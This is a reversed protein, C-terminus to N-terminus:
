LDLTHVKSIFRDFQERDFRSMDWYNIVISKNNQLEIIVGSKTSKAHIVDERLYTRKRGFESHTILHKETVKLYPHILRLVGLTILLAGIPWLAIGIGKADVLFYFGCLIGIIGFFILGVPLLLGRRFVMERKKLRKDIKDTIIGMDKYFQQQRKAMEIITQDNVRSVEKTEFATVLAKIEEFPKNSKEALTKLERDGERRNLDIFYHKLITAYFNKRQVQLMGFHNQKSYYISTITENFALTMNKKKGLYPVEPRKRQTRFIVYLILALILLLVANRLMPRELLWGLLSTEDKGSGKKDSNEEEEEDQDDEGFDDPLRGLELLVVDKKSSLQDIVYRAHRFGSNRKLQYNYFMNPNTHLFIKGKGMKIEIFNEMEMFTSLARTEGKPHIQGFANWYRALTDQQYVNIMDYRARPTFVAEGEDYDSRFYVTDFFRELINDTVQEFSFFIDSGRQVKAMISDIEDSKLGFKNGVFLYTRNKNDRSLVSDLQYFTKTTYMDKKGIHTELLKHFLYTGRPNKDSPQYSSKWNSSYFKKAVTKNNEVIGSGPTFLWVLLLGFMLIGGVLMIKRGSNM